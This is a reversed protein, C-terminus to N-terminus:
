LVDLEIEDNDVRIITNCSSSNNHLQQQQQKHGEEVISSPSDLLHQDQYANPILYCIFILPICPLITSILSAKWLNAFKVSENISGDPTVNLMNLVFAGQYQSFTNGLNSSSALIAFMTAEIGKPCIQSTIIMAPIYTWTAIIVQVTEAGLVFVYDPIWGVNWRLYFVVDLLSVFSLLINTVFFVKRYTWNKMLTHYSMVGILGCLAGVLGRVTVFFYTSFHPGEPYQEANDTYFFFAPTETSVSFMGQLLVLSVLKAIRVDVLLFFSLILVCSSLISTICLYLPDVQVLGLVSATLSITVVIIALIFIRYEKTMKVKDFGILPIWLLNDRHHEEQITTNYESSFSRKGENDGEEEHENGENEETSTYRQPRGGAKYHLKQLHHLIIDETMARLTPSLYEEDHESGNSKIHTNFILTALQTKNVHDYCADALIKMKSVILEDEDNDIYRKCLVCISREYLMEDNKEHSNNNNARNAKAAWSDYLSSYYFPITLWVRNCLVNSLHVSDSKKYFFEDRADYDSNLDSAAEFDNNDIGQEPKVEIVDGIWNAYSPPFSLVLFIMPFIYIFHLDNPQFQSVLFGTVISTLIQGIFMGGQVFSGFDVSVYPHQALKTSYKAETLLDAVAMHLFIVFLYVTYSVPSLPWMMAIIFCSIISPILTFCIYPFKNNGSIYCLDSIVGFLSKITWPTMAVAKLVQIHVSNLGKYSRMIFPIAVGVLGGGGGGFTFGKLM